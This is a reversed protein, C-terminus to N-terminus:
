TDVTRGGLEVTVPRPTLRASVVRRGSVRRAREAEAVDPSGPGVLALSGASGTCASLSGVAAVSVVGAATQVFSRRSM